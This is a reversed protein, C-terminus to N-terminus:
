NTSDFFERRARIYQVIQELLRDPLNCLIKRLCFFWQDMVSGSGMIQIIQDMDFYM